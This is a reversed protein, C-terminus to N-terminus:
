TRALPRLHGTIWDTFQALEEARMEGREHDARVGILITDLAELM